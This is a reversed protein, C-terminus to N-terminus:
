APVATELGFFRAANGHAVADRWEAPLRKLTQRADDFDWHPYDSSFCLTRQPELGEIAPPWCGTRPHSRSRSPPGPLTTTCTSGRRGSATRCRPAAAAGLRTSGGSCGSSPFSGTKWHVDRADAPLARLHRPLPDLRLPRVDGRRHARPVGHLLRAHRRGDGARRHRRGRLPHAGCRPPRPRRVGALDSRAGPQRIPDARRRPPFVGAIEEREGLRRIEAAAAEPHQPTVVLPGRLRPERELWEALLWDNYGRCLGAALLPNPPIAFAAAEDPTLIGVTM